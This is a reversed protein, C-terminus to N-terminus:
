VGGHISEIGEQLESKIWMAVDPLNLPIDEGLVQRVQRTDFTYQGADTQMRLVFDPTEPAALILTLMTEAVNGLPPCDINSPVFTAQLTTGKGVASTLTLDGGSLRANEYLMPIGLGVSRTTRTTTFPSKVNELMEPPMGCGDDVIDISLSDARKSQVIGITVLTAGATISNQVLDLIHLSLDRM